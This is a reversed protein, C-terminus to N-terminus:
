HRQRNGLPTELDLDAKKQMRYPEVGVVVVCLM